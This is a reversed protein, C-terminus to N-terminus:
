AASDRPNSEAIDLALTGAPGHGDRAKLVARADLAESVAAGMRASATGM